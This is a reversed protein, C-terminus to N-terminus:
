KLIKSFAVFAIFLDFAAGPLAMIKPIKTSTGGWVVVVMYAISIFVFLLALGITGRIYTAKAEGKTKKPLTKTTKKDEQNGM